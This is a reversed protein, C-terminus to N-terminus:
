PRKQLMGIVLLLILIIFFKANASFYVNLPKEILLRHTLPFIFLVALVCVISITVHHYIFYQDYGYALFGVAVLFKIIDAGTIQM